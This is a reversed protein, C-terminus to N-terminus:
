FVRSIPCGLAKGLNVVQDEGAKGIDKRRQEYQQITRVSVGSRKALGSQSLQAYKRYRALTTERMGELERSVIEEMRDAFQEVDMEHYPNYFTCVMEIPVCEEIERFPRGSRWQYYALAWGTWYESSRESRYAPRVAPYSLGSRELVDWALEPGSRGVTFSAEGRGFREAAGTSIFLSYFRSLNFQLDWVAYDLMSGLTVRARELYLGDYASTM